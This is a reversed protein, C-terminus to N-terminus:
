EDVQSDVLAVRREPIRSDPDLMVVKKLSGQGFRNGLDKELCQQVEEQRGKARSSLPVQKGFEGSLKALGLYIDSVGEPFSVAELHRKLIGLIEPQSDSPTKLNVTDPWARGDDSRFQLKIQPCVQYRKRLLPVLKDLLVDLAALLADLSELPQEFSLTKELVDPRLRPTVPRRDIGNALCHAMRGDRGLQSDLANVPMDAVQGINSLGLRKLWVMAESSVPLFDIPLPELFSRKQGSGVVLPKSYALAAAIGAVFKNDAIGIQSQLGTQWFVDHGVQGALNEAPGFLQETGSVDLFASGLRDAEVTPSFRDLIDLVEEFASAYGAEDVPLFIADPCCHSAQRLTMGSSIGQATANDSCDLVTKREYLFGGIVLAAKALEPHQKLEWQVPLHPIYLCLITM